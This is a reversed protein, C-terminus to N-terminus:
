EYSKIRNKTFFTGFPLLSAIFFIISESFSWKADQWAKVLLICFIIFLIGHIMGVIKVAMPYGLMYKMPMAVFLLLLYSYGEITNIYGFKKVSNKIM